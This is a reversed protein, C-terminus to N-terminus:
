PLLRVPAAYHVYYGTDRPPLTLDLLPIRRRMHVKASASVTMGSMGPDLPYVRALRSSRRSTRAIRAPVRCDSPM